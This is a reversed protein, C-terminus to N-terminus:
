GAIVPPVVPAVVPTVAPTSKPKHERQKQGQYQILIHGKPIVEGDPGKGAYEKIAVGISLKVGAKRLLAVADGADGTLRSMPQGKKPGRLYTSDVYIGTVVIKYPEKKEYSNILSFEWKPDLFFNPGLDRGNKGRKTEMPTKSKAAKLTAVNLM